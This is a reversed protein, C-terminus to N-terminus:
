TEKKLKLPYFSFNRFDSIDLNYPMENQAKQRRKNGTKILMSHQVDTWYDNKVFFRFMVDGVVVVGSDGDCDSDCNVLLM